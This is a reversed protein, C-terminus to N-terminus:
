KQKSRIYDICIQPYKLSMMENILIDSNYILSKLNIDNEIPNWVVYNIENANIRNQGVSGVNILNKSGIEKKFMRHSHGIFCNNELQIESDPYIYENNLTHTLQYNYCNYESIYKEIATLNEFQPYCHNFFCKAIENTGQYVGKIFAEEHNGKILKGNPITSLLQVCQNSWPGYNVVDGLSVMQDFDKEAKLVLELAALNGHIDSVILIKM